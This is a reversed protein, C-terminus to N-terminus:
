AASRISILWQRQALPMEGPLVDLLLNYARAAKPSTLAAEAILDLIEESIEVPDEDALVEDCDDCIRM